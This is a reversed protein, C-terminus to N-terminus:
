TTNVPYYEKGSISFRMTKSQLKVKLLEIPLATSILTYPIPLFRILSNWSDYDRM